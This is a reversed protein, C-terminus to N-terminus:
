GRKLNKGKKAFLTLTSFPFYFCKQLLLQSTLFSDCSQGGTEVFGLSSAKEASVAVAPIHFCPWYYSIYSAAEVVLINALNVMKASSRLM